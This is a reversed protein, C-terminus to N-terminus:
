SKPPKKASPPALQLRFARAVRLAARTNANSVLGNSWAREVASRGWYAPDLTALDRTGFCWWAADALEASRALQQLTSTLALEEIRLDLIGYALAMLMERREVDRSLQWMERLSELAILADLPSAEVELGREMWDVLQDDRVLASFPLPEYQEKARQKLYARFVSRWYYGAFRSFSDGFKGITADRGNRVVAKWIRFLPEVAADESTRVSALPMMRVQLLEILHNAV